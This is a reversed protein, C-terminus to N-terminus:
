KPLLERAAVLKATLAEQEERVSEIFADQDKEFALRDLVLQTRQAVDLLTRVNVSMGFRDLLQPRLEGEQVRSAVPHAYV